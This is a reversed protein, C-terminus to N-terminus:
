DCDFEEPFEGVLSIDVGECDIGQSLLESGTIGPFTEAGVRKALLVDNTDEAGGDPWDLDSTIEGRFLEAGRKKVFSDSVGRSLGDEEM